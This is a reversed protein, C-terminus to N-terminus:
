YINKFFNLCSDESFLFTIQKSNFFEFGIKKNKINKALEAARNKKNCIIIINKSKNLMRLSISIRKYKDFFYIQNNKTNKKFFISAIHCNKGLSLVALEPTKIKSLTKFYIKTNKKSFKKGINFHIFNNKKIFIYNKLSKYNSLNSSYPVLREDSL